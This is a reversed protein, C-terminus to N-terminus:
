TSPTSAAPAEDLVVRRVPRSLLRRARAVLVLAVVALGFALGWWLGVPGLSTRFGLAMSVPIGALWFGALNVLMPVRTDGLGRLIGATVAQMGDFLQFVGAVPLLLAALVITAEDGTYLDALVRPVSLFLVATLAMFGVGYVLAARAARRAGPLDGRGVAHGVLVAAAAGTGFPVMFTVSALNLAVQHAAVAVTGLRGMLLGVAGFATYELTSQVGIPAGLRLLRGLTRPELSERRFPRVLPLLAGGAGFLVLLAPLVWRSVTTAIAAGAVGLAPFGLRGYILAWDLALNLLNAAVITLVIPRTRHLAQLTQRFVGFLYYPVVSPAVWLTYAGVDPLIEAPQGLARLAPEGVLLLLSGPVALLLALVLGRQAGRAAGEGDGAGVAQSVVPDLAMLAALGFITCAFFYVNGLAVAALARPSLHGVMVTDVVGMLMLGLQVGVVPLALRLLERSEARTPLARQLLNRTAPSDPM